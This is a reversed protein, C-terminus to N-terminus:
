EPDKHYIDMVVLASLSGYVLVSAKDTDIFSNFIGHFFYTVFGMLIAIALWRVEKRRSMNYIRIATNFAVLLLMNFIIFGPLGTESLYTLFESHANGKEGHNTSIGTKESTVQYKGYIFQYTGPGFGMLPRDRFMKLACHWRNIRELNSPDTQINLVSRLHEGVDISRSESNVKEAYQYIDTQYYFIVGGAMLTILMFHVLRFRFFVVLGAILIAIIISFWAARSFSFLEGTILVASICLILIRFKRSVGFKEPIAAVVGLVPLIYAICTAYQTHDNYFPGTMMNSVAKSFGYHSHNYLTSFVPVVLGLGYLIWIRTINKFDTFLVSFIFFFVIMFTIRVLTRKLSIVPIESFFTSLIMWSIDLLILITLPHRFIKGGLRVPSLLRFVIYFVAIMGALLEAPFSIDIGGNLTLKFSLPIALVTIFVLLHLKNLLLYILPLSLAIFYSIVLLTDSELGLSVAILVIFFITAIVPLSFSFNTETSKIM